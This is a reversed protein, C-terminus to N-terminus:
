SKGGEHIQGIPGAFSMVFAAVVVLTELRREAQAKGATQLEPPSGGIM